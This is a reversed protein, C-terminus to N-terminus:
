SATSVGPLGTRDTTKLARSIHDFLEFASRTADSISSSDRPFTEIALANDKIKVSITLGSDSTIWSLTTLGSRISSGLWRLNGFWKYSMSDILQQQNFDSPLVSQLLVVSYPERREDPRSSPLITEHGKESISYSHALKEVYGDRQLRHLARSLTEQHLGLKRRIGQFSFQQTDDSGIAKLIALDGPSPLEESEDFEQGFRMEANLPMPFSGTSQSYDWIYVKLEFSCTLTFRLELLM